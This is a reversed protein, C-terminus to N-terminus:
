TISVTTHRSEIDRLKADLAVIHENQQRNEEKQRDLEVLLAEVERNATATSILSFLILWNWSKAGILTLSILHGASVSSILSTMSLDPKQRKVNQRIKPLRTLSMGCVFMTPKWYSFEGSCLSLVSRGPPVHLAWKQVATGKMTLLSRSIFHWM